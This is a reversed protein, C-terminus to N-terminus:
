RFSLKVGKGPVTGPISSISSAVLFFQFFLGSPFQSPRLDVIGVGGPRSSGFFSVDCALASWRTFSVGLLFLGQAVLWLM